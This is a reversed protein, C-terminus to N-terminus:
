VGRIRRNFYKNTIVQMFAFLGTKKAWSMYITTCFKINNSKVSGVTQSSFARQAM